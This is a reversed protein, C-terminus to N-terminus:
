KTGSWVELDGRQEEKLGGVHMEHEGQEDMEMRDMGTMRM